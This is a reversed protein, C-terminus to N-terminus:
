QGGSEGGGSKGKSDKIEGKEGVVDQVGERGREIGKEYKETRRVRTGGGGIEESEKTEYWEGRKENEQVCSQERGEKWRFM